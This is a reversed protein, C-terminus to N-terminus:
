YFWEASCDPQQLDSMSEGTYNGYFERLIYCIQLLTHTSKYYICYNWELQIHLESYAESPYLGVLEVFLCLIRIAGKYGADPEETDM